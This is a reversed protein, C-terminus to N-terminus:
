PGSACPAWAERGDELCKADAPGSDSSVNLLLLLCVVRGQVVSWPKVIIKRKGKGPTELLVRSFNCYLDPALRGSAMSLKDANRPRVFFFWLRFVQRPGSPQWASCTLLVLWSPSGPLTSTPLLSPCFPLLVPEPGRRQSTIFGLPSDMKVCALSCLSCTVQFWEGWLSDWPRPMPRESVLGGKGWPGDEVRGEGGQGTSASQNWRAAEM